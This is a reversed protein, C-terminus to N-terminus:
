NCKTGQSNADANNESLIIDKIAEREQSDELEIFSDTEFVINGSPDVTFFGAYSMARYYDWPLNGGTGYLKDWQQLSYAIASVFQAMFEHHLRNGDNQNYGNDNAFNLLSNHLSRDPNGRQQYLLYAHVSEHIMTRAIALNTAQSLYNSNFTTIIEFQGSQNNYRAPDTEANKGILSQDEVIYGFTRSDDFLKISKPM